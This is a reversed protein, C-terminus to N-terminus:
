TKWVVDGHTDKEWGRELFEQFAAKEIGIVGSSGHGPYFKTEEPWHFVIRQMTEMTTAFDEGSSTKGPGGVFITDGVLIRGDGLDICCQGPTHGPVHIIKVWKRGIPIEDGDRLPRDYELEFQAADAPHVYVEAGTASKIDELSLVHDFHGHTLLIKDVVTDGVMELIAEPDGGPDVIASTKTEEDIIVYTNMGYPGVERTKLIFDM